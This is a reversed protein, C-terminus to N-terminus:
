YEPITRPSSYGIFSLIKESRCMSNGGNSSAEVSAFTTIRAPSMPMLVRPLSIPLRCMGSGQSRRMRCDRTKRHGCQDCAESSSLPPLVM